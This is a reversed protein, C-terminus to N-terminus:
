ARFEQLAHAKSEFENNYIFPSHTVAILGSCRGSAVIDPLFSEQWPVSLSLEPEDIILLFDSRGSLYLHAFLSVIQKEGSSLMNLSIEEDCSVMVGSKDFVPAIPLTFEKNNFEFKKGNLYKNCVAVFSRASQEKENQSKHLLVLKSIIHASIKDIDNVLGGSRLSEITSLLTKRDADSLVSEEIRGLISDLDEPRIDSISSVNEQEYEKRLIVRLYGGTLSHLSTRFSDKLSSMTEIIMGKVDDMGFEVLEIYQNFESARSRKRDFRHLDEEMSPFITQLDREIRRYTPLFLVHFDQETFLDPLIDFDESFLDIQSECLERLVQRTATPSFRTIALKRYLIPSFDALAEQPSMNLYRLRRSLEQFLSGQAKILSSPIKALDEKALSLRNGDITIHLADFSFKALEHWQKTIFYFFITIVTSKGSGNEGVLILQNDEFAIRFDNRGYLGEIEFLEIKYPM